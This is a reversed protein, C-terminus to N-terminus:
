HLTSQVADTDLTERVARALREPTFPKQLLHVGEDLVGRTVIHHETYGSMFLVKMEPARATALDALERGSMSPMIVDTLLLDIAERFERMLALADNGSAAGLTRYGYSALARVALTRVQDDDEVVLVTETGRYDPSGHRRTLEERAGRTRPLYIKFTAGHDPESYVWIYGNAQKVIGYCTSLGLGTGQGLEKTTFFPEFIQAQTDHDMGTGTDAVQIVVYEGPEVVEGRAAGATRDLEVNRTEITLKGGLPMADRANVALNVIVQELAAPDVTSSWLDDALRSEYQVDEGLVRRLMKEVTSVVTNVNLVRPTVTRRRSFALLQGTLEKAREAAKLVEHLDTYPPEAPHMGELAFETFSFIATLINNFDHAVGGALRGVAEMKQSHRLQEELQRRETVDQATGVVRVPVKRDNVIVKGTGYIWRVDGNPRIIRHELEFTEGTAVAAAGRRRLAEADAPPINAYYDDRNPPGHSPDMGWIHYMEDSWTFSERVLDWEWYGLAAIKQAERLRENAIELERYTEDSDALADELAEAQHAVAQRLMEGETADRVVAHSELVGERDVFIGREVLTVEEGDRGIRYRVHYSEGAAARSVVATMQGRDEEVILEDWADPQAAIEAGKSGCVAELAGVVELVRRPHDAVARLFVMDAASLIAEARLGSQSASKDPSKM